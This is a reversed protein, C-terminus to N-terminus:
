KGSRSQSRQVAWSGNEENLTLVSDQLPISYSKADNPLWTIGNSSAPMFWFSGGAVKPRQKYLYPVLSFRAAPWCGVAFMEPGYCPPTADVAPVALVVVPSITLVHIRYPFRKSTKPASYGYGQKETAWPAVFSLRALYDDIVDRVDRRIDVLEGTQDVFAYDCKRADAM